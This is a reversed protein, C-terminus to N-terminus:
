RVDTNFEYFIVCFSVVCKAYQPNLQVKIKFHSQFIAVIQTIIIVDNLIFVNRTNKHTKCTFTKEM